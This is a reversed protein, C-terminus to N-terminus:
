RKSEATVMFTTEKYMNLEDELQHYRNNQEMADSLRQLAEHHASTSRELQLRLDEIIGEYVKKSNMERETESVAAADDMDRRLLKKRVDHLQTRLSEVESVLGQAAAASALATEQEFVKEQAKSLDEKLTSEAMQLASIQEAYSHCESLVKEHAEKLEEIQEQLQAKTRVAAEARRSAIDSAETEAEIRKVLEANQFTVDQLERNLSNREAQLGAIESLLKKETLVKNNLADLAEQLDHSLSSNREVCEELELKIDDCTAQLDGYSSAVAEARHLAHRLEDIENSQSSLKMSVDMTSARLTEKEKRSREMEQRLESCSRDLNRCKTEWEILKNNLDKVTSQLSTNSELTTHYDNTVKELQEELTHATDQLNNFDRQQSANVNELKDIRQHLSSIVEESHGARETANKLENNLSIIEQKLKEIEIKQRAKDQLAHSSKAREQKLEEWIKEIGRVPSADM